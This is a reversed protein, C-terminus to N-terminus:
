SDIFEFRTKKTKKPVPWNLCLTGKGHDDIRVQPSRPTAIRRSPLVEEVRNVM